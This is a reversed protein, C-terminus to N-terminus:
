KAIEAQFESYRYRINCPYLFYSPIFFWVILKGPKIHKM